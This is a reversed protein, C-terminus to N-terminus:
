IQGRIDRSSLFPEFDARSLQVTAASGPNLILLEDGFLMAIFSRCEVSLGKNVFPTSAMQSWFQAEDSFFPIFTHGAVSFDQILLQTAQDDAWSGIVIVSHTLLTRCLEPVFNRDASASSILHELEAM